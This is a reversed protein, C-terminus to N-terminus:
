ELGEDDHLVSRGTAHHLRRALALGFATIAVAVVIGTLVMAHPVPDVIDSRNRYAITGFVLFVGSGVVNLALLKRLLHDQVILAHIGMGVLVAGVVAYLTFGSM